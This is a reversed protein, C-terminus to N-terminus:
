NHPTYNEGCKQKQITPSYPAPCRKGTRRCVEASMFVCIQSPDYHKSAEMAAQQGGVSETSDKHGFIAKVFELDIGSNDDTEHESM